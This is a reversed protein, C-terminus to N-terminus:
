AGAGVADSTGSVSEPLPDEPHTTGFRKLWFLAEADSAADPPDSLEMPRADVFSVMPHRTGRPTESSDFLAEHMKEGPRLGTFEIRIDRGSQDIMKHAVDVIRIPEGMDLVLVGRREGMSAAQLVLHVAEAVTMFYRSVDPDTVTVPGGSAIQSRFATLVSGRSGLVNGFRVSVFNAGAPVESQSVLRETIRKSYGLV